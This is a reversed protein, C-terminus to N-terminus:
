AGPGTRVPGGSGGAKGRSFIPGPGRCGARFCGRPRARDGAALPCTRTGPGGPAGFVLGRRDPFKAVLGPPCVGSCLFTSCSARKLLEGAERSSERTFFYLRSMARLVCNYAHLSETSQDRVRAAEVTRLRPELSGLISATIRDQFEFLEDTEGEFRQAWITRIAAVDTLELLYGYAHSSANWAEKSCTAFM